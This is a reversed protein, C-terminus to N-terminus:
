NLCSLAGKKLPIIKKPKIFYATGGKIGLALYSDDEIYLASNNELAIGGYKDFSEKGNEDYHPCCNYHFFGLGKIMKFNYYNFNDMYADSDTYCGDFFCIAGASIGAIFINKEMAKALIKDVGFRYFYELMIKTNGGGIYILDSSLIISELDEYSEKTLTIVKVKAKYENEYINVFSNINSEKDLSACPIYCVCPNDKNVKSFIFDDFPKITRNVFDGGGILLLRSM